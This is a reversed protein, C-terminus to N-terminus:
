RAVGQFEKADKSVLWKVTNGLLRRFGPNNWATPGHGMQIYAVPSAKTRKAWVMLNSAPPHDWNENSELDGVLARAISYFNKSTYSHNSAMLPVVSDEFVDQLFAEDTIEFGEELGETIPHAALPYIKHTVESNYGGDLIRKGRVTGEQNLLIGGMAEAYDPWSPWAAIAHHLFLMPKGEELLAEFGRRYEPTPDHYVPPKLTRYELGPMDYFIFADFPKAAAPNMLATAAPHEVLTWDLGDKEDIVQDLMDFFPGREYYHSGTIVLVRQRANYRYHSM